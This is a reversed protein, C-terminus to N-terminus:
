TEIGIESLMHIVNESAINGAAGPVFSCGGLGGFSTDFCEIGADLGAIINAM